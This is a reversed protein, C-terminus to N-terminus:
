AAEPLRIRAANRCEDLRQWQEAVQVIQRYPVACSELLRVLQAPKRPLSNRAPDILYYLQSRNLLSQAALYRKPQGSADVAHRLVAALEANTAIALMEDPLPLPTPAWVRMNPMASIVRQLDVLHEKQQFLPM